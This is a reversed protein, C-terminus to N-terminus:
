LEQLQTLLQSMMSQPEEQPKCTELAKQLATEPDPLVYARKHVVVNQLDTIRIENKSRVVRIVSGNDILPDELLEILQELMEVNGSHAKYFQHMRVSGPFNPRTVIDELRARQVACDGKLLALADDDGKVHCSSECLTCQLEFDSLYECPSFMLNQECFGVSTKSAVGDGRGTLREYEGMSYVRLTQAVEEPKREDEPEKFFVDRIVGTREDETSHLYSLVQEPSVRGSWLNLLNHSIGAREGTTNLWHRFQHPNISFDSSFGFQQFITATPTKASLAVSFADSLLEGGILGFWSMAGIYATKKANTYWQQGTLLLAANSYAVWNEGSAYCRPFTPLVTRLYALWGSQFGTVSLQRNAIHGEFITDIHAKQLKLGLVADSSATSLLIRDERTLQCVAKTPYTAHKARAAGETGKPVQLTADEAYFGLLYGLQLLHAPANLDSNSKAIRSASPKFNGLLQKLPKDPHEYFRALIRAPESLQRMYKLCRKVPEVMGAVLHNRNDKYGKSGQWDLWHVTRGKQTHSKVEQNTLAPLEAAVRNPAALALASMTCVLAQRPNDPKAQTQPWEAEDPPVVDFCIAGLATLVKDDPMKESNRILRDYGDIKSKISPYRLTAAIFKNAQLWCFFNRTKRGSGESLSALPDVDAQSLLHMQPQLLIKANHVLATKRKLTGNTAVVEIAYAMLLHRQENDLAWAQQVNGMNVIKKNAKAPDHFYLNVTRGDPYRYQWAVDDYSAPLGAQNTYGLLPTDLMKQIARHRNAELPNLTKM